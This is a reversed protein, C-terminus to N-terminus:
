NVEVPIWVIFKSGKGLQSEAEIFGGHEAAIGYSISLGLGTGGEKARTTFFPEFIRELNDPSIGIGTDSVLITIWDQHDRSRRDTTICLEGGKSMAHLANHILNLIVQKIQNRDVSAAPLGSPLNTVLQVGSTHLLHNVLALVEKVIESIDSRERVSDTQRAFDLLRKVVDSARHAERLVLELDAHVQSDPPVVEMTLETFGSVTTLPNNLEHAIGAAMEGVAALKAAQVLRREAMQQAAIHEQLEEQTAHLQKDTMQLKQYQRINSIVSALIGGLSELVLLDNKSFANNRKSKIEIIGFSQQGEKLAVCIESGAIWEHDPLNLADNAPHTVLESKGTVVVRMSIENEMPSNFISLGSQEESADGGAIGALQLEKHPGRILSVIAIENNFKRALLEATIQSVQRIDKKGIVREVIEHILILTRDQTGAEKPYSEKDPTDSYELAVEQWYKRTANSISEAAVLVARKTKENPFVFLKQGPIGTEESIFRPRVDKGNLARNLWEITEPQFIYKTLFDGHKQNIKYSCIVKWENSYELWAAWFAGTLKGAKKLQLDLQSKPM